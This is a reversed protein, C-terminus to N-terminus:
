EIRQMTIKDDKVSTIKFKYTQTKNVEEKEVRIVLTDALLCYSNLSKDIDKGCELFSNIELQGDYHFVFRPTLAQKHSKTLVVNTGDLKQNLFWSDNTLSSLFENPLNSIINGDIDFHQWFNKTFDAIIQKNGNPYNWNWVGIKNGNLYEGEYIKNKNPYYAVWNGNRTPTYNYNISNYFIDTIYTDVWEKKINIKAPTPYNWESVSAIEGDEYYLTEQILLDDKYLKKNCFTGDPKKVYCLGNKLGNFYTETISYNDYNVNTFTGNGNTIIQQDKKNWASLLIEKGKKYKYQKSIWYNTSDSIKNNDNDYYTWISDRFGNKYFGKYQKEGDSWNVECLGDIVNEKFTLIHEITGNGNYHKEVGNKKGNIWSITAYKNKSYIFYRNEIGTKKRDKFDVEILINEKSKNYSCYHGDPLSEKFKWIGEGQFMYKKNGEKVWITDQGFLNVITFNLLLITLFLKM